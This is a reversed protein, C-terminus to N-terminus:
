NFDMAYDEDWDYSDDYDDDFDDDFDDNLSNYYDNGRSYLSLSGDSNVIYSDDNPAPHVIAGPPYYGMLTGDDYYVPFTKQESNSYSDAVKNATLTSNVAKFQISKVMHLVVDKNKCCIIINDHTTDNGLCICYIEDNDKMKVNDSLQGASLKYVTYGDINQSDCSGIIEKIAYFGLAGGLENANDGEQSNFSILVGDSWNWMKIGYEEGLYKAQSTPIEISTGNPVLEIREYSISNSLSIFIACTLACISIVLIAILIKDRNEM